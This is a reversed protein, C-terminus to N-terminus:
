ASTQETHWLHLRDVGAELIVVVVPYDLMEGYHVEKSHVLFILLSADVGVDLNLVLIELALCM